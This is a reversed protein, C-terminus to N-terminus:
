GQADHRAATEIGQRIPVFALLLGGLAFFALVLLMAERRGVADSVPGFAMGLIIALRSFMGWFGFMQASRDAPSLLGVVTRSSSQISGIGAGAILSIGFFVSKPEASFMEAIAHLFYIALIGAMWWVITALVTAKAGFRTELFGFGLAGAAASIQLIIFMVTLDKVGMDLESTAYIGVFKIVVELGAMYVMFAFFFKFLVPYNRAVQYSARLEKLGAGMLQGFSAKEFGPKPRSRERVLWFTPRSAVLFFVGILVMAFRNQDIYATLDKEPDAGITALILVLSALGGFYGLGWGLGSIIGMNKKTALDTLFSGCFSEGIMFSANSITILVIALWINGPAVFYLVMTALACGFTTYALYRKKGGSYDCIAGVFPSLLIAVVTSAIMAVSWYTDRATSEAPVIHAVFFASYVVSIVVTTYSSNAFDYMAWGFIERKRVPPVDPATSM